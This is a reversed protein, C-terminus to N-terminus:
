RRTTYIQPRASCATKTTFLIRNECPPAEARSFKSTNDNMEKLYAENTPTTWPDNNKVREQRTDFDELEEVTPM